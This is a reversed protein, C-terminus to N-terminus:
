FRVNFTLVIASPDRGVKACWADQVQSKRKREAPPLYPANWGDAFRASTRLTRNEVAGGIWLPLRTQIPKPNNPADVLRFHTGDFDARRRDFLLRLAEAYEELQDERMAISPFPIGYAAFEIEDWGASEAIPAGARSTTSPA